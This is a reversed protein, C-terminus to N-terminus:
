RELEYVGITSTTAAIGNVIGCYLVGDNPYHLEGTTTAIYMGKGWVATLGSIWMGGTSGSLHREKCNTNAPFIETSVMGVSVSTSTSVATVQEVGGVILDNGKFNYSFVFVVFIVVAILAGFIFNKM